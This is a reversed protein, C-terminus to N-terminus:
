RGCQAAVVSGPKFSPTKQATGAIRSGAALRNLSARPVKTRTNTPVAITSFCSPVWNSTGIPPVSTQAIPKLRPAVVPYAILGARSRAGRSAWARRGMGPSPGDSQPYAHIGTTPGTNPPTAPANNAFAANTGADGHDM